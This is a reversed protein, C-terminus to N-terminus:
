SWYAAKVEPCSLAHVSKKEKNEGLVAIAEDGIELTSKCCESVKDMDDSPLSSSYSYTKNEKGLHYQIWSEYNRISSNEMGIAVRILTEKSIEKKHCANLLAEKATNYAKYSIQGLVFALRSEIDTDGNKLLELIPKITQPNCLLELAYAACARVHKDDDKLLKLIHEVVAIPNGIKNGIVGLTHATSARISPDGDGLLEVLLPLVKPDPNEISRIAILAYGRNTPDDDKLFELFENIVDVPDRNKYEIADLLLPIVPNDTELFELPGIAEPTIRILACTASERVELDIDENTLFELMPNIAKLGVNPIIYNSLMWRIDSDNEQKLLYLLIDLM